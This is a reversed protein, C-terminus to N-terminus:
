RGLTAKGSTRGSSTAAVIEQKRLETMAQALWKMFENRDTPIKYMDPTEKM